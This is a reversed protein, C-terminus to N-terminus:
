RVEIVLQVASGEGPLVGPKVELKLQGEEKMTLNSQFVTDDTVPFLALLTGTLDAGYVKDDKEPDPQRQPAGTFYWKLTPPAQGTRRDVLLQEIPLRKAKDDPGAVELYINVEPGEAKADQGKAPKGPALNFATLAKHIDSPRVGTFTVVTEHAKQGRPAPYTAVVEIPYIENLNPLKRPAVQGTIRVTRKDKDIVLNTPPKNDEVATPVPKPNPGTSTTTQPPKKPPKPLPIQAALELDFYLDSSSPTNKVWVALTNRGPRLQPSKLEVERNWYAFEHDTEEQDVLEGNLWVSACNDSALALRFTVNKQAVLDAAVDVYRRFYFNQGQESITTGDRKKLEEEGYGIPAKGTRWSSDNFNPARWQDGAVDKQPLFRWGPASEALLVITKFEEIDVEDGEGGLGVFDRKADYNARTLSAKLRQLKGKRQHLQEKNGDALCTVVVEKGAVIATVAEALKDPDGYYTRLLFPEAHSLGWWEGERYCQYWYTGICTESAGGNHFFVAKKGEEAWNMVNQWERPHFGRQGINHKIQEEPHKGKLDQLKKFIILNKERSVRAVEVLVVNSSEKICQGLSHPAEVYAVAPSAAGILWAIAATLKGRM